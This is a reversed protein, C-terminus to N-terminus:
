EVSVASVQSGNTTLRRPLELTFLLNAQKADAYAAAARADCIM